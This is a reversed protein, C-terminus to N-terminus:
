GQAALAKLQGSAAGPHPKVPVLFDSPTVEDIGCSHVHNRRLSEAEQFDHLAQSVAM